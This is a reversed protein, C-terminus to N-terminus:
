SGFERHNGKQDVAGALFEADLTARNARIDSRVGESM